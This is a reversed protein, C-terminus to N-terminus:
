LKELTINGSKNTIKISSKEASNYFVQETNKVKIPTGFETPIHIQGFNTSLNIKYKRIPIHKLQIDSKDGNLALNQVDRPSVLQIEGYYTDISFVGSFNKLTLNSRETKIGTNGDVGDINLDGYKTQIKSIGKIHNLSLTCFEANISLKKTEGSHYIKGFSNKIQLDSNEPIKLVYKAKFNSEPKKDKQGLLIYNRLRLQGNKADIGSKLFNLDQAALSKEPHKASLDMSLQVKSKNWVVIEIDAKEADIIVTHISDFEKELHKTAVQLTTQATASVLALLALCTWLIKLKKRMM